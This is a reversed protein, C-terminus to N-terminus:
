LFIVLAILMGVTYARTINFIYDPLRSRLLYDQRRDSSVVLVINSVVRVAMAPVFAFLIFNKPMFTGQQVILLM